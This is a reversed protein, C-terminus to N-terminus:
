EVLSAFTTESKECELAWRYAETCYSTSSSIPDLAHDWWVEFSTGPKPSAKLKVSDAERPKGYQVAYGSHGTAGPAIGLNALPVLSTTGLKSPSHPYQLQQQPNAGNAIAEMDALFKQYIAIAQSANGTPPTVAGPLESELDRRLNGQSENLAENNPQEKNTWGDPCPNHNAYCRTHLEYQCIQCTVVNDEENIREACWPCLDHDV